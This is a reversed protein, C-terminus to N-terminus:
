AGWVDLEKIIECAIQVSAKAVDRRERTQDVGAGSKPLCDSNVLGAAISGAVQAVFMRRETETPKPM